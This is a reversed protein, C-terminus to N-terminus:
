KLHALYAIVAARDAPATLGAYMRTGPAFAGPSAVYADLAAATWTGGKAKLAPSFTFDALAAIKRGSVGKLSPGTPGSKGTISHCGACHAAFTAAGDAMATGGFGAAILISLLLSRM